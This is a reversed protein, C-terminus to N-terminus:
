SLRVRFEKKRHCECGAETETGRGKTLCCCSARDRGLSLSSFREQKQNRVQLLQPLALLRARHMTSSQRFRADHHKACLLLHCGNNNGQLKEKLERGAM